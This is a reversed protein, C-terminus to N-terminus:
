EIMMILEESFSEDKAKLILEKLPFRKAFYRFIYNYKIYSNREESLMIKAMEDKTLKIDSDTFQDAAFIAFGEYFWVPGMSNEDGELIRIHLQHAIEHTLLKEYSNLEVGEPYVKTYIEPTVAILTRKELAGCYTEPLQILTGANILKLLAINFESKNDFIMVSDMFRDETLDIWGYKDAFIKINQISSNIYNRFETRRNELSGPLILPIQSLSINEMKNNEKNSLYHDSLYSFSLNNFLNQNIKKQSWKFVALLLNYRSVHM